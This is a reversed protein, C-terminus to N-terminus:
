NIPQKDKATDHNGSHKYVYCYSVSLLLTGRSVNPSKPFPESKKFISELNEFHFALNAAKWSESQFAKQQGNFPSKHFIGSCM